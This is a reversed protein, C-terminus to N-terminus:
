NKAYEELQGDAKAFRHQGEHPIRRTNQEGDTGGLTQNRVKINSHRYRFHGDGQSGQM